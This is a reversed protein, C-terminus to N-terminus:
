GEHVALHLVVVVPHVLELREPALAHVLRLLLRRPLREALHVERVRLLLLVLVVGLLQAVALEGERVAALNQQVVGLELELAPVLVAQEAPVVRALRREHAGDRVLLHVAEGGGGLEPRHEHLCSMM